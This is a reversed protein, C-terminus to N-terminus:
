PQQGSNPDANWMNRVRTRCKSIIDDMNPPLNNPLRNFVDRITQYEEQLIEVHNSMRTFLGTLYENNASQASNGSTVGRQLYANFMKNFGLERCLNILNQDTIYNAIINMFFVYQDRLYEIQEMPMDQKQAIVTPIIENADELLSRAQETNNMILQRQPEVESAPLNDPKVQSNCLLQYAQYIKNRIAEDSTINYEMLRNLYDQQSLMREGLQQILFTQLESWQQAAASQAAISNEVLSGTTRVSDGVAQGQTVVENGLADIGDHVMNTNNTVADKVDEIMKANTTQGNMLSELYSAFSQRSTTIENIIKILQQGLAENSVNQAIQQNLGLLQQMYSDFKTSLANLVDSISGFQSNYPVIDMSVETEENPSDKLLIENMKEVTTNKLAEM